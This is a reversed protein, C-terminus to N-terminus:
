NEYNNLFNRNFNKLWNSHISLFVSNKISDLENSLLSNYKFLYENFRNMADTLKKPNKDFSLYLLQFSQQTEIVAEELFVPQNVNILLSSFSKLVLFTTNEPNETLLRVTAGRLHKLNDIKGETKEIFDWVIQLSNNKGKNTANVLEPYYKSNFYNNLYERFQSDGDPAIGYKCAEEMARIATMRKAAIETYIFDILYGLCKQIISEGKFSQVEKLANDAKEKSFYRLLFRHLHNIYEQDSKKKASLTVTKANYDVTYDDIVGITSLRYVAKFTDQTTRIKKFLRQLQNSVSSDFDLNTHTQKYFEYKLKFTFDEGSYCYNSAKIVMNETFQNDVYKQLLDTILTVTNNRFGIVIPPLQEGIKKNAL